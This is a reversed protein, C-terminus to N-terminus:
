PTGSSCDAPQGWSQYDYQMCQAKTLNPLKGNPCVCCGLMAQNDSILVPPDELQALVSNYANVVKVNLGALLDIVVGFVDGQNKVAALIQARQYATVKVSYSVGNVEFKCNKLAIKPPKMQLAKGLDRVAHASEVDAEALQRLAVKLPNIKKPKKLPRKAM